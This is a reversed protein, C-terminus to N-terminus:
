GESISNCVDIMTDTLREMGALVLSLALGPETKLEAPSFKLMGRISTQGALLQEMTPKPADVPGLLGNLDTIANGISVVLNESDQEQQVRIDELAQQAAAILEILEQATKGTLDM